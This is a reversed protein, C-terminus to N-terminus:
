ARRGLRQKVRATVLSTTEAAGVDAVKRQVQRVLRLPRTIRWSLTSYVEALTRSEDGVVALWTNLSENMLADNAAQLRQIENEAAALRASLTPRTSRPQDSMTDNEDVSPM